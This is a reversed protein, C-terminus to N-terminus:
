PLKPTDAPLAAGRAECTALALRPTGAAYDALALEDHANAYAVWDIDGAFGEARLKEVGAGALMRSHELNVGAKTVGDKELITSFHAELMGACYLDDRAAQSGRAAYDVEPAEPMVSAPLDLDPMSPVTPLTLEPQPYGIAGQPASISPLSALVRDMREKESPQTLRMVLIGGFIVIAGLGIIQRPKLKM